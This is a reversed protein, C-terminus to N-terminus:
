RAQCHLFAVLDDPKRSDSLPAEMLQAQLPQSAHAQSRWEMSWDARRGQEVTYREGAAVPRAQLRYERGELVLRLTDGPPAAHQTLVTTDGAVAAGGAGGACRWARIRTDFRALLAGQADLWHLERGGPRSVVQWRAVQPFTQLFAQELTMGDACAMRTAIAPSLKLAAGEAQVSSGIRNCGGSGALRGDAQLEVYPTRQLPLSAPVAAQHLALLSWRQGQAAALMDPATPSAGATLAWTTAVCIVPVHLRIAAL